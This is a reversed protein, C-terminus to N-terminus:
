CCICRVARRRCPLFGMTIGHKQDVPACGSSLYLGAHYKQGCLGPLQRQGAPHQVDSGAMCLRPRVARLADLHGCVLCRRNGRRATQALVMGGSHWYTRLCSLNFYGGARHGLGSEAVEQPMQDQRHTGCQLLIGPFLLLFLICASRAVSIGDLIPHMGGGSVVCLHNCFFHPVKIYNEPVVQVPVARVHVVHCLAASRLVSECSGVAPNEGWLLFFISLIYPWLFIKFAIQRSKEPKKSFYGSLFMFAQMVFINITIYIVGSVSDHSFHGAMRTFHSIPICWMCLGRFTDFVYDRQKIEGM